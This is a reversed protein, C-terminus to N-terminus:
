RDDIFLFASIMRDEEERRSYMGGDSVMTQPRIVYVDNHSAFVLAEIARYSAAILCQVAIPM